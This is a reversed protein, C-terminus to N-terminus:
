FFALASLISEIAIETLTQTGIEAPAATPTGMDGPAAIPPPPPPPPVYGPTDMEGAYAPIGLTLVLLAIALFHKFHKM